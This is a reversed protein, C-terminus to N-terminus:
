GPVHGWGKASFPRQKNTKKLNLKILTHTHRHRHRHRDTDTDTHTHTNLCKPQEALVYMDGTLGSATLAEPVPTLSLRSGDHPM